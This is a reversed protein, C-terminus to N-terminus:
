KLKLAFGRFSAYVLVLLFNINLALEVLLFVLFLKKGKLTLGVLHTEHRKKTEKKNPNCNHRLM